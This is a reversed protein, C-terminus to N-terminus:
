DNDKARSAAKEIFIMITAATEYSNQSYFTSVIIYLARAAIACLPYMCDPGTKQWLPANIEWIARGPTFEHVM